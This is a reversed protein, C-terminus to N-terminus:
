SDTVKLTRDLFVRYKYSENSFKNILMSFYDDLYKDDVNSVVITLRIEKVESFTCKLKDLFENYIHLPLIADNEIIFHWTKDSDYVFVKKIDSNELFDNKMGIQDLLKKM